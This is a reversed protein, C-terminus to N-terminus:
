SGAGLDDDHARLFSILARAILEPQEPLMAHGCRPVEVYTSRRGIMEHLTRGVHPASLADELPQVLLIDAEGATAWESADTNELAVRLDSGPWWGRLWSSADNGPAFFVIGLSRIREDETLDDRGCREFHEIIHASPPSDALDHGGCALLAVTRVVEPRYAATARALVNGQAHGVVHMPEGGMAGVVDAIDDAVDRLTPREFPASSRGIGRLNVAVSSYGAGWLDHALTAFDDAGRRASPILIVTPRDGVVVVEIESGDRTRVLETRPIVEHVM